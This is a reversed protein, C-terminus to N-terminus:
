FAYDKLREKKNYTCFWYICGGVEYAVIDLIDTVANQKIVHPAYEWFLGIGLIITIITLLRTIKKSYAILLIFNILAFILTGAIIDNLYCNAFYKIYGTTYKGIVFKNLLYLM